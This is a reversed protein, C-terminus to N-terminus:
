AAAGEEVLQEALRYIDGAGLTLIVDGEEIETALIDPAQRWDPCHVVHRHGSKQAADVVLESTVGPLPEERSPYIDTVLARNAGLLARGFEEALELTRSFLHPQFVAYLKAQPFVQHAAM